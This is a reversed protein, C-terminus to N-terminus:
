LPLATLLWGGLAWSFLNAVAAYGVAKRKRQEKLLLAFAAMEVLLVVIEMPTYFFVGLLMSTYANMTVPFLLHICLNVGLQTILNVVLFVIWSRRDRYGFLFFILGELFLTLGVRLFILLPMRWWPQGNTLTRSSLNLTLLNNYRSFGTPDIPLSFTEEGTDVVLQAGTLGEPGYEWFSRGDNYNFSVNYYNFRYYVEWAKPEGTLVVPKLSLSDDFELSLTLDKPAGAVLVTLCPPEASNASAPLPFALCFLLTFFLVMARRKM